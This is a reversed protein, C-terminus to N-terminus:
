IPMTARTFEHKLRQEFDQGMQKTIAKLVDNNKLTVPISIGPLATIPLDNGSKNIRHKRRSIVGKAYKGRVMVGKYGTGLVAIFLGPLLKRKGREVEVTTGRKTQRPSFAGLSIPKGRAVVKGTLTLRDAKVLSLARNVAAANVAYKQRISRNLQTKSKAITHNIARAVALNRKDKNTPGGLERQLKAIADRADVRIM